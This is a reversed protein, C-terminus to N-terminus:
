LKGLQVLKLLGSSHKCHGHAEHGLCNCWHEGTEPDIAVDYSEAWEGSFKELRWARGFDSPRPIIFYSDEKRGIKIEVVGPNGEFPSLSLRITRQVPKLPKRVPCTQTVTTM